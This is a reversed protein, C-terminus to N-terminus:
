ITIFSASSLFVSCADKNLSNLIMSIKISHITNFCYDYPPDNLIPSNIFRDIWISQILQGNTMCVSMTPQGPYQPDRIWLIPFVSLFIHDNDLFFGACYRM